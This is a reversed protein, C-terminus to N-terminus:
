AADRILSFRVPGTSLEAVHTGDERKEVTVRDKPSLDETKRAEAVARAFAREDGEAVLEPTLETDLTMEEANMLIEKVNVEDALIRALEPLLTGPISLSALPQRVVVGKAQRLRLADSALSRVRQMGEILDTDKKV